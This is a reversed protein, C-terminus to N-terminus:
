LSLSVVHLTLVRTCTTCTTLTHVAHATCIFADLCMFLGIKKQKFKNNNNEIEEEEQPSLGIFPCLEKWRCLKLAIENCDGDPCEVELHKRTLNRAELLHDLTPELLKVKAMNALLKTLLRLNHKPPCKNSDSVSLSRTCAYACPAVKERHLVASYPRALSHEVPWVNHGSHRSCHPGRRRCRPLPPM